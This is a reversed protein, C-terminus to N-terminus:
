LSFLMYTSSNYRLHDLLESYQTEYSVTISAMSAVDLITVCTPSMFEQKVYEVKMEQTPWFPLHTSFSLLNFCQSMDMKKYDHCRKSCGISTAPLSLVDVITVHDSTICATERVTHYKKRYTWQELLKKLAQLFLLAM